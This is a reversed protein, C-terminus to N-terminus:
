PRFNTALPNLSQIVVWKTPYTFGTVSDGVMEQHYLLMHLKEDQASLERTKVVLMSVRPSILTVEQRLINNEAALAIATRSGPTIGVAQSLKIFGFFLISGILVGGFALKAIAWKADVFTILESSYSYVKVRDM